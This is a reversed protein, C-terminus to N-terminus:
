SNFLLPYLFQPLECVPYDPSKESIERAEKEDEAEVFSVGEVAAEWDILNPSNSGVVFVKLM